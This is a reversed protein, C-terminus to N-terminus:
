GLIQFIIEPVLLLLRRVAAVTAALPEDLLDVEGVVLRAEVAEELHLKCLQSRLPQSIGPALKM